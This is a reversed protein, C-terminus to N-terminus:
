FVDPDCTFKKFFMYIDEWIINVYFALFILLM